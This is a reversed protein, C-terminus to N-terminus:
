GLFDISRPNPQQISAAVSLDVFSWSIIKREDHFQKHEPYYVGIYILANVGKCNERDLIENLQKLRIESLEDYKNFNQENDLIKLKKVFDKNKLISYIIKQYDDSSEETKIKNITFESYVCGTLMQAIGLTAPGSIGSIIILWKNDSGRPLPFPNRAVVLQGLLIHAGHAEPQDPFFHDEIIYSETKEGGRRLIFGREPPKNERTPNCRYFTSPAINSIKTEPYTKYAIFGDFMESEKLPEFPKRKWIRSLAIETLDNVDSSAVIICNKGALQDQLWNIQDDSPKETYKQLPSELTVEMTEKKKSLYSTLEAATRYDWDGLTNRGLDPMNISGLFISVKNDKLIRNWFKDRQLYKSKEILVFELINKLSNALDVPRDINYYIHWLSRIDFPIDRRTDKKNDIVNIPIAFGGIAHIYGLWFFAGPSSANTDILICYSEQLEQLVKEFTVEKLNLAIMEEFDRKQYRKLEPHKEINSAKFINEMATGAASVFLDGCNYKIIDSESKYPVSVTRGDHLVILKNGKQQSYGAYKDLKILHSSIKGQLFGFSPYELLTDIGILRSLEEERRRKIDSICIPLIPKSLAVGMGLEYFVNPNDLSVDAVLLNAEQIKKCIKECIIYGVRRIDDAREPKCAYEEENESGGISIFPALQWQYIADLHADFPMIIFARRDKSSSKIAEIREDIAREYICSKGNMFCRVMKKHEFM